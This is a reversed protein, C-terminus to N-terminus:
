RVQTTQPIAAGCKPCEARGGAITGRLDYQCNPCLRESVARQRIRRYLWLTPLIAFVLTLFWLPMVVDFLEQFRQRKDVGFGMFHYKLDKWRLGLGLAGEWTGGGLSSRRHAIRIPYGPTKVLRAEFEGKAVYVEFSLSRLTVYASSGNTRGDIWLWIVGVMMVVSLVVMTNFIRRRM